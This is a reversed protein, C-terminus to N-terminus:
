KASKKQPKCVRHHKQDYLVCCEKGKEDTALKARVHINHNNRCNNCQYSKGGPILTYNYYLTKDNSDFVYLHQVKKGRHEVTDLEYYPKYIITPPEYEQRECVHENESLKVYEEGNENSEITASVTPAHKNINKCKNCVFYPKSSKLFAITNRTPVFTYNYCLTKDDTDFVYLHKKWESGFCESGIRYNKVNIINSQNPTSGLSAQLPVPIENEKSDSEEGSSVSEETPIDPVENEDGYDIDGISVNFSIGDIIDRIQKIDNSVEQIAANFRKYEEEWFQDSLTRVDFCVFEQQSLPINSIEQIRLMMSEITDNEKVFIMFDKGDM